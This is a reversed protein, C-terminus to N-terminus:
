PGPCRPSKASPGGTPFAPSISSRSATSGATVSQVAADKGKGARDAPAPLPPEPSYTRTPQKKCLDAHLYVTTGAVSASSHDYKTFEEDAQIPKGCRGCFQPLAVDMQTRETM